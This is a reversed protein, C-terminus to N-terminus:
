GPLGPTIARQIQTVARHPLRRGFKRKLELSRLAKRLEGTVPTDLWNLEKQIRRELGKISVGFKFIDDQVPMQGQPTYIEELERNIQRVEWDSGSTWSSSRRTLGTEYDTTKSPLKKDLEAEHKRLFDGTIRFGDGARVSADGLMFGFIGAMGAAIPFEGDRREADQLAEAFAEASDKPKLQSSFKWGNRELRYLSVLFTTASADTTMEGVMNVFAKAADQGIETKIGKYIMEILKSDLDGSNNGRGSYYEPRASMRRDTYKYIIDHASITLIQNEM